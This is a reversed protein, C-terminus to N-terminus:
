GPLIFAAMNDWRVAGERLLKPREGTVDVITSPLGGPTRGGDIVLDLRRDFYRTVTEADDAPPRGSINASTSTIPFRAARALRLALSDGPVRVAVTGTGATLYDSLGERAPVVLTVPGPWFTEALRDAADSVRPCLSPLLSADGIILPLAKDRPREKLECVRRLADPVDFKAGIAYFTETPYAVIGGSLLIDIAARIVDREGHGSVSLIKM